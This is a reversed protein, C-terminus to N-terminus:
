SHQIHTKLYFSIMREQKTWRGKHSGNLLSAPPVCPSSKKSNARVVSARHLTLPLPFPLSPVSLSCTHHEHIHIHRPVAVCILIIEGKSPIEAIRRSGSVIAAPLDSWNLLHDAQADRLWRKWVGKIPYVNEPLNILVWKMVRSVLMPYTTVARAPAGHILQMELNSSNKLSAKWLECAEEPSETQNRSGRVLIQTRTPFVTWPSSSSPCDYAFLM